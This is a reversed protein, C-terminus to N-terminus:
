YLHNRYSHNILDDESNAENDTLSQGSIQEQIIRGLGPMLDRNPKASADWLRSRMLAKGCQFFAKEVNVVIVSMPAKGQVKARKLVSMDQTVHASGNVRLCEVFGPIMFLLAMKPTKVINTLSDLRNNGRRDPLHLTREDVCHVFGPGDGRPSIDVGGLQDTTALLVFPSLAIFQQCYGDLRDLEKAVAQVSPRDYIERLQSETTIRESSNDKMHSFGRNKLDYMLEQLYTAM